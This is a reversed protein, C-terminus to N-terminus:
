EAKIEGEQQKTYYMWDWETIKSGRHASTVWLTDNGDLFVRGNVLDDSWAGVIMMPFVSGASVPNGIHAQYGIRDMKMRDSNISADERRKNIKRADDSSLKYLVIRGITPKLM